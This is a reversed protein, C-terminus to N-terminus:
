PKVVSVLEERDGKKVAVIEEAAVQGVGACYFKHEYKGPELDTYDKTMLCHEFAGYPVTVREDLSVVEARDEAIGARYEQRYSDGVQPRAKMVIGAKACDVGAEWSGLTSIAKGNQFAKTDEGFYWVNGEKDQAYWDWTDEIVEGNAARAVDHVVRCPVGLITRTESTVTIEGTQGTTERWSFVTGPTLPLYPNDITASFNAAVILPDYSPAGPLKAAACGTAPDGGADTRAPGTVGGDSVSAPAPSSPSCGLGAAGALGVVMWSVLGRLAM